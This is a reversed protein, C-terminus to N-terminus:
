DKGLIGKENALKVAQAVLRRDNEYSLLTQVTEFPAWITEFDENGM